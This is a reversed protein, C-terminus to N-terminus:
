SKTNSRPPPLPKRLIIPIVRKSLQWCLLAKNEPKALTEPEGVPLESFLGTVEEILEALAETREM